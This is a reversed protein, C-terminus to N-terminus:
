RVSKFMGPTTDSAVQSEGDPLAFTLAMAAWNTGASSIFQDYEHPFGSDSWPQFALARTQVYWSGDEQQHKLLWEVGRGYVADYTPIGAVHLAVLSKGTAYATSEMSPLDSWGGDAKQAGELEQVAKRTAANNTGAWALGSVRWSRDDNNYSPATALWAAARQVSKRYTASNAKPGYLQLARMSLATQGIYNLCLPQRTDAHPQQWEGNPKQRWLIHMAAADTTLDPKYGEADLGLLIYATVGESFNDKVPLMFGQHLQDRIKAISDVNVAVQAAATKEDVAFGKKRATGVTMATLSNNHCSVCGSNKAFRVDALQLLPLSDHIAGRIENNSRPKLAVPIPGGEKAGAAMLYDLVPTPGHMKALDLVTRGSDGANLRKSKANVDAGSSVLLKVADLPLVDSAAAYMLATHGFVDYAKPDAGHDLMMRIQKTKGLFGTDELASTYINRDTIKAVALDVCRDCDMIVAMVLTVEADDKLTAGHQMLLEFSTADGVTAAELLPSSAVEPRVNPNPNAGHELLLQVVPGGGPRRAAIMLATRFSDSIVNVDAGKAVLLRAKELNHVGWMLATANADNRANVNAGMGLLRAVTATNTYLVSYMFPTSGEPGRANLLAPKASVVKMFQPVDGRSLMAVAAVAEPNLPPLENENALEDPWAAGQEIWDKLTAVQGPRLDGTPPMQAGYESGMVRHYVMSNASNGAVIRRTQSRMASSKRDLRLGGNQKLPGHCSVCNQQLLPKVDRAYDVTAPAQSSATSVVLMLTLPISALLFKM